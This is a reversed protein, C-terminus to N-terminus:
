EDDYAHGGDAEAGNLLGVARLFMGKPQAICACLSYGELLAVGRTATGGDVKGLSGTQQRAIATADRQAEIRPALAALEMLLAGDFVAFAPLADVECQYAVAHGALLRQQALKGHADVVPQAKGGVMIVHTAHTHTLGALAGNDHEMTVLLVALLHQGDAIVGVALLTAQLMYVVRQLYATTLLHEGEDDPEIDVHQLREGSM